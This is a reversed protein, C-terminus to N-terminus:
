PEQDCQLSSQYLQPSKRIEAVAVRIVAECSGGGGGLRGCLDIFTIKMVSRFIKFAQQYSLHKEYTKNIM